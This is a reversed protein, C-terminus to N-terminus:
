LSARRGGAELKLDSYRGAISRRVSIIWADESAADASILAEIDDNQHQLEEQMLASQLILRNLETPNSSTIGSNQIFIDITDIRFSCCNAIHSTLESNSFLRLEQAISAADMASTAFISEHDETDVVEDRSPPPLSNISQEELARWASASFRRLDDLDNLGADALFKYYGPLARELTLLGIAFAAVPSLESLRVALRDIDFAPNM